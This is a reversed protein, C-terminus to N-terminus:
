HHRHPVIWVDRSGTSSRIELRELGLDALVSEPLMQLTRRDRGAKLLRRVRRWIMTGLGGVPTDGPTIRPPCRSLAASRM